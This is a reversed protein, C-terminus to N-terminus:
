WKSIHQLHKEKENGTDNNYNINKNILKAIIESVNLAIQKDSKSTFYSNVTVENTKKTKLM